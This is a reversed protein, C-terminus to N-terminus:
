VYFKTTNTSTSTCATSTPTSTSRQTEAAQNCKELLSRLHQTVPNYKIVCTKGQQQCKEALRESWLAVKRSHKSRNRDRNSKLLLQYHTM